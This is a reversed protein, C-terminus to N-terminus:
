IGNVRLVNEALIEGSTGVDDHEESYMEYHYKATYSHAASDVSLELRIDTIEWWNAVVPNITFVATEGDKMPVHILFPQSGYRGGKCRVVGGGDTQRVSRVTNETRTSGFLGPTVMDATLPTEKGDVTLQVECVVRSFPYLRYGIETFPRGRMYWTLLLAGAAAALAILIKGKKKM